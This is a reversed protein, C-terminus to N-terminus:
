IEDQVENWYIYQALIHQLQKMFIEQFNSQGESEYKGAHLM